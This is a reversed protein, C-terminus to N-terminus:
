GTYTITLNQVPLGTIETSWTEGAKVPLADTITGTSIIEGAALQEM